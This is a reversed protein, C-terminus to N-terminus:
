TEDPETTTSQQTVAQQAPASGKGVFFIGVAVLILAAGGLIMGWSKLGSAPERDEELILVKDLDLNPFNQSILKKEDSDLSDIENIVLGQISDAVDPKPIDRLKKFKKTKVLVAFKQIKPPSFNPQPNKPNKSQLFLAALETMFPHDMSIVPHYSYTISTEPGPESNDYKSKSYYYVTEHHAAFHKGLKIYNNPIPKGDELDKLSVDAPESSTGSSVRLEQIGFFTLVGGGIVMALLIRGM